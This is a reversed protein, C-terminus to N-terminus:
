RAETYPLERELDAIEDVNAVYKPSGLLTRPSAMTCKGDDVRDADVVNVDVVVVDVGDIFSVGRKSTCFKALFNFNRFESEFEPTQLPTSNLSPIPDSNGAYCGL